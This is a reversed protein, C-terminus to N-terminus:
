SSTPVRDDAPWTTSRRSGTTSIPSSRASSRPATTPEGCPSPPTGTPISNSPSSRRQRCHDARLKSPSCAAPPSPRRPLRRRDGRPLAERRRPGRHPVRGARRPPRPGCTRGDPPTRASWPRGLPPRPRSRPRGGPTRPRRPSGIRPDGRDPARPRTRLVGARRRIRAHRTRPSPEVLGDVNDFTTTPATM